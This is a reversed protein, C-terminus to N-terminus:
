SKKSSLYGYRKFQFLTKVRKFEVMWQGVREIFEKPPEFLSPGGEIVDLLYEKRKADRYTNNSLEYLKDEGTEKYLFWRLLDDGQVISEEVVVKPHLVLSLHSSNLVAARYSNNVVPTM